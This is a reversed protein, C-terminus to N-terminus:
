MAMTPRAELSNDRGEDSSANARKAPLSARLTPARTLDTSSRSMIPWGLARVDPRSADRHRARTSLRACRGLGGAMQLGLQHRAQQGALDVGLLQHVHDEGVHQREARFAAAHPPLELAAEMLHAVPVVDDGQALAGLGGAEPPMEFRQGIRLLALRDVALRRELGPAEAPQQLSAALPCGAVLGGRGGLDRRQRNLDGRMEALGVARGPDEIEPRETM